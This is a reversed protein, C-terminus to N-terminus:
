GRTRPRRRDPRGTTRAKALRRTEARRAMERVVVEVLRTPVPAELPFRMTGKSFEYSDLEPGLAARVADTVPYLSWNRKWGAFAVVGRRDVNYTPIQYSIVEEAGPLVRRIISRVRQLVPRSENPQKAIYAEVVNSASKAM